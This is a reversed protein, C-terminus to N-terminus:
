WPHIRTAVSGGARRVVDIFLLLKLVVFLDSLSLWVLVTAKCAADIWDNRRAFRVLRAVRMGLECCDLEM